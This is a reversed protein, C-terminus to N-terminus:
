QHAESVTVPNFQQMPIQLQTRLGGIFRSVLQDETELLKTRAIMEFFDSAYEDVKRSGQRLNQLKNYLTREYNYPLFARRMHKKLRDWKDIRSKGGRCRTEKTQTWWALARSKFRTAVLTVRMEDPVQKFELIEEVMNLWDLFEEPNLTGVFEPIDIQFGSEWRNNPVHDNNPRVRIQRDTNPSQRVHQNLGQEAFINEDEAVETDPVDDDYRVRQEIHNRQQHHQEQQTHLMANEVAHQLADHLGM